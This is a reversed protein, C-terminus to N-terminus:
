IMNDINWLKNKYRYLFDIILTSTQEEDIGEDILSVADITYIFHTARFSNNIILSAEFIRRPNNMIIRLLKKTDITKM